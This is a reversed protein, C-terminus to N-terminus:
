KGLMEDNFVPFWEDTPNVRVSLWTTIAYQFSDNIIAVETAPPYVSLVEILAEATRATPIKREYSPAPNRKVYRNEDPSAVYIKDWADLYPDYAGLSRSIGGGYVIGVKTDPKLMDLEAVLAEVTTVM